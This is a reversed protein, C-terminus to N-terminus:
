NLLIKDVKKSLNGRQQSFLGCTFGCTCQNLVSTTNLNDVDIAVFNMFPM